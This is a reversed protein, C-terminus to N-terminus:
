AVVVGKCGVPACGRASPTGWGHWGAATAAPSLTRPASTTADACYCGGHAAAVVARLAPTAGRSVPGWGRAEPKDAPGRVSAPLFRCRARTVSRNLLASM